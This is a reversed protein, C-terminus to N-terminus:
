QYCICYTSINIFKENQFVVFCKNYGICSVFLTDPKKQLVLTFIGYKDSIAGGEQNGIWINAYEIPTKLASDIVVGSIKYQQASLQCFFLGFLLWFFIYKKM